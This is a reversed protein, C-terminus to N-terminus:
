PRTTHLTIPSPPVPRGTVRAITAILDHLDFPKSVFATMGAEECRARDEARANATMAIVPLARATPHERLRRTATLGDMDPMQLDMLVVDFPETDIAQLAAAGTPVVRVSAGHQELITRALIQNLENDEALLVHLGALVGQRASPGPTPSARGPLASPADSRAAFPARFWFTSGVGAQSEVGVSGHMMEALRRCIALGLGTGGFRRTTSSDAQEFAHFLRERTAEDMGIGSDSVRLEIEPPGDHRGVMLAEVTIGGVQTFKIANNVYNLLIQEVRLPDGLLTTAAMADLRFTLTLGKGEAADRTQSDVSRFVSALEFPVHELELKGAEIKSMDLIDNILRLLQKGALQIKDLYAAQQPDHNSMRALQAFGIVGNLPTRIEHSMNALFESKAASAAEAAAKAASLEQTRAEVRAELEAERRRLLREVVLLRDREQLQYSQRIFALCSVLLSGALISFEASDPLGPISTALAVGLAALLVLVLPLMRLAGECRRDWRSDDQQSQLRFHQIGWGLIVAVVSFSLNVWGGTEIEGRLFLLNWAGWCLTLGLMGAPMLGARWDPRARLTLVLVATLCAPAMLAIPYAAMVTAQWLSYQGRSPLFLALTSAVVALWMGVADLRATHWRQRPLSSAGLQWLAMTALVGIGIFFADSPLPFTSWGTIVQLNWAMQGLVMSLMALTLWGKASKLQADAEDQWGRWAMLAGAAFGFTWHVNDLVLDWPEPALRVGLLGGLTLVLCLGLVSRFLHPSVGEKYSM